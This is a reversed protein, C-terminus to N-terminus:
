KRRRLRLLLGSAGVSALSLMSVIQSPEPAVAVAVFTGNALGTSERDSGSGYPGVYEPDGPNPVWFNELTADPGYTFTIGDHDLQESTGTLNALLNDAYYTGVPQLADVTLGLYTGSISTVAYGTHGDVTTLTPNVTLTGSGDVVDSTTTFSWDFTLDAQASGALGIVTAALLAAIIKPKSM